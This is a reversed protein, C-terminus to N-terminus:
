GGPELCPSPMELSLACSAVEETACPTDVLPGAPTLSASGRTRPALPDTLTGWHGHCNM